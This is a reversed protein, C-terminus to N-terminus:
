PNETSRRITNYKESVIQYYGNINELYKDAIACPYDNLNLPNRYSSYSVINKPIRHTFGNMRIFSFKNPSNVLSIFRIVEAEENVLIKYINKSRQVIWFPVSIAKIKGGFFCNGDLVILFEETDKNNDLDINYSKNDIIFNRLSFGYM